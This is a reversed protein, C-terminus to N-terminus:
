ILLQLISDRYRVLEERTMILVVSEGSASMMWNLPINLSSDLAPAATGAELILAGQETLYDAAQSLIISISDLGQEGSVLAMEPEFTYEIPLKQMNAHSVYPPNCVILDYQGQINEFLDSHITKVTQALAYDDINRQSVALAQKSLDSLDVEVRDFYLACAIGISGGGCCLDLIRNVTNSNVWPEFKEPVWEGLHSRPVLAREDIYFRHGAFWIQNILYALPKQSEIRRSVLEKGENIQQDTLSKQWGDDFDQYCFGAIYSALWFAEDEADLAGHGYYLQANAFQKGAWDAFDEVTLIQNKM